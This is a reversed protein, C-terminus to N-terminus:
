GRVTADFVAEFPLPATLPLYNWELFGAKSLPFDEVHRKVEDVTGCEFVIVAGPADARGYIERIIGTKWLRWVHIMEVKLFQSKISEKTIGLKFHDYAIIKM